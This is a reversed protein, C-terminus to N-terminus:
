PALGLPLVRGRQDGQLRDALAAVHGSSSPSFASCFATPSSTPEGIAALRIPMKKMFFRSDRSGPTLSGDTLGRAPALAGAHEPGPEHPRADGRRVGARADARRHDVDVVGPELSPRLRAESTTMLRILIPRAVGWSMALMSAM